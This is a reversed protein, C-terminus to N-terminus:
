PTTTTQSNGPFTKPNNLISSAGSITTELSNLYGTSYTNSPDPVVTTSVPLQDGSKAARNGKCWQKKQKYKAFYIHHNDYDWVSYYHTLLKAPLTIEDVNIDIGVSQSIIGAYKKGNVTTYNKVFDVVPLELEYGQVDLKLSLDKISDFAFYYMHLDIDSDSRYYYDSSSKNLGAFLNGLIPDPLALIDAGTDIIAAVTQSSVVTGDNLKMGNITFYPMYYQKSKWRPLLDVKTLVGDYIDAYVGGFLVSGGDAQGDISFLKREIKQQDKMSYLLNPYNPRIFQTTNYGMGLIGNYGGLLSQPINTIALTQNQLKLGNWSTIIDSGQYLSFQDISGYSGYFTKSTNQFTKSYQPKYASTIIVTDSSGTDFEFKDINQPPFGIQLGHIFYTEDLTLDFEYSTPLQFPWSNGLQILLSILLLIKISSNSMIQLM